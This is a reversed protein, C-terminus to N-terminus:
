AAARRRDRLRVGRRRLVGCNDVVGHVGIDLVALSELVVVVTSVVDLADARRAVEAHRGITVGNRKEATPAIHEVTEGDWVRRRIMRQARVKAPRGHRDLRAKIWCRPFRQVGEFATVVRTPIEHLGSAASCRFPVLADRRTISPEGYTKAFSRDIMPAPLGQSLMEM